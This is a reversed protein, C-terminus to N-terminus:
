RTPLELRDRTKGGYRATVLLGVRVSRLRDSRVHRALTANVRIASAPVSIRLGSTRSLCIVELKRGHARTRFRLHRRTGLVRIVAARASAVSVGAPLSVTVTKLPQQGTAVALKLSLRPTGSAVGTLSGQKIALSVLPRAPKTPGSQEASGGGSINYAM